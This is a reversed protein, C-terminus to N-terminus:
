DAQPQVPLGTSATMTDDKSEDTNDKDPMNVNLDSPVALQNIKRILTNLQATDALNRQRETEELDIDMTNADHEKHKEELSIATTLNGGDESNDRSRKQTISDVKKPTAVKTAYHGLTIQETLGPMM